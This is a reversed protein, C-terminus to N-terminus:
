MTVSFHFPWSAFFYSPLLTVSLFFFFGALGFDVIFVSSFTLFINMTLLLFMLDVDNQHKKITLKLYIECRWSINRKTGKFLYISASFTEFTLGKELWLGYVPEHYWPSCFFRVQRLLATLIRVSSGSIHDVFFNNLALSLPELFFWQTQALRLLFKTRQELKMMSVEFWTPSNLFTSRM